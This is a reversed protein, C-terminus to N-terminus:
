GCGQNDARGVQEKIMINVCVPIRFIDCLEQHKPHQNMIEGNESHARHWVDNTPFRWNTFHLM